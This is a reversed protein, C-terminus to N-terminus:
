KAKLYIEVRRREGETLTMQENKGFYATSYGPATASVRIPKKPVTFEFHALKDVPVEVFVSPNQADTITVKGQSVIQRTGEDRLVGEIIGGKTGLGVRVGSVDADNVSIEPFKATPDSSLLFNPDPFGNKEDKARIVYRGSRLTLRFEGDKGTRVWSLHGASAVKEIPFAEVSAGAVPSGHSDAVVGVVNHISFQFAGSPPDVFLSLMVVALGFQERM